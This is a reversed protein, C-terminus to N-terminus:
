ARLVRESEAREIESCDAGRVLLFPEVARERTPAGYLLARLFPRSWRPASRIVNPPQRIFDVQTVPLADCNWLPLRRSTDAAAALTDAPTRTTDQAAAPVAAALALAGALGIAGARAGARTAHGRRSSLSTSTPM